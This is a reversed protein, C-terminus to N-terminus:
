ISPGLCRLQPASRPQLRCLRCRRLRCREQGETRPPKHLANYYIECTFNRTCVTSALSSAHHSVLSLCVTSALIKQARFRESLNPAPQFSHFIGALTFQPSSGLHFQARPQFSFTSPTSRGCNFIVVIPCCFYELSKAITFM